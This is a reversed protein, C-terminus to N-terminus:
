LRSLLEDEKNSQLKGIWVGAVEGKENVLVLTPTGGISLSSLSVQRVDSIPVALTKLYDHGEAPSQPLVAIVKVEKAVAAQALRQYFPASESCFHCSTSLAVVLTKGNKAWEVGPLSVKSGLAITQPPEATRPFFFKQVLVVVITIAVLIIALNAFLEVRKYFAGAM